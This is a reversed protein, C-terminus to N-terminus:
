KHNAIQSKHNTEALAKQGIDRRFQMGDFRIRAAGAYAVDIAERHSRGRGVVTVVRGGATVMQGDRSATGAHFVLAGPIQAADDLGTITRGNDSSEPYGASALVVGVHPENRFRAPRDPLAGAATAWLLTSLDEDLM